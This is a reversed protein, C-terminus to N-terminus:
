SALSRLSPIVVAPDGAPLVEQLADPDLRLLRNGMSELLDSIM